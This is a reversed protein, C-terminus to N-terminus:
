AVSHTHRIRFPEKADYRRDRRVTKTYPYLIGQPHAGHVGRMTMLAYYIRPFAAPLATQRALRQCKM